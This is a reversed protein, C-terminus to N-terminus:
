LNFFDSRIHKLIITELRKMDYLGYHSAQKVAGLFAELPYLQKLNLLQKFTWGGRGRVNSKLKLLYADLIPSIHTLQKEAESMELRHAARNLAVHHGKIRSCQHRKGIIRAHSAALRAAYYIDIKDMYQYVDMTHGIHSESVSYRNTDVNVFGETDTVRQVHNYIPPLVEPLALLHPKEQIYATQPAMGITRKLKLNAYTESWARAQKNLDAWDTFTRGALFNTEAFYFPREVKAKRNCDDVAHAMFEFGFFRSFFLMEPAIVAYKGAGAALIVSTNDIVCRRCSGQMFALAENLFVKAEFRTFCPYYQIFLMRSFGFVLSACQAKVSKGNMMVYHPSTDHQMEHGPEFLYEGFRKSPGNRLQYKRVLRTLTSYACEQQHEETLIEHVRVLNGRCSHILPRIREILAAEEVARCRTNDPVTQNVKKLISRVTNRSMNLIRSIERIGKGAEHLQQVTQKIPPQHM